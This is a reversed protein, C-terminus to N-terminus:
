ETAPHLALPWPSGREAWWQKHQSQQHADQGPSPQGPQHPQPQSPLGSPLAAPDRKTLGTGVQVARRPWGFASTSLANPPHPYTPRFTNVNEQSCKTTSPLCLLRPETWPGLGPCSPPFLARSLPRQVRSSRWPAERRQNAQGHTPSLRCQAPVAATPLARAADDGAWGLGPRHCLLRNVGPQAHRTRGAKM